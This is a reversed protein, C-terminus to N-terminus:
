SFIIETICPGANRPDVFKNGIISFNGLKFIWSDSNVNLDFM